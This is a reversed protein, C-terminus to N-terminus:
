EDEVTTGLVPRTKCESVMSDLAVLMLYLQISTVCASARDSASAYICPQFQLWWQLSTATAVWHDNELQVNPNAVRYTFRHPSDAQSSAM